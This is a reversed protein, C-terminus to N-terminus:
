THELVYIKLYKTLNGTSSIPADDPIDIRHRGTERDSALDKAVVTIVSVGEERFRKISEDNEKNM